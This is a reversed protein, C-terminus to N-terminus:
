KIKGLLVEIAKDIQPDKGAFFEEPTIDVKFDPEQGMDELPTGDMRYVGSGPMRASTGDVLRFGGTWIVYGPTPMGVLTALGRSKMAYPFMEANSYSTEAAMVVTPKGWTQGPALQPQEDRPVYYSHPRREIIDILQDSINGGGNDRVDIIVGDKGQTLQWFERQFQDFNGGGMGAIHVYTLKGNSKEEVYKRRAELLNRRVIGAFEGGSLARYKVTRANTKNPTSNVLLTLDRGTQNNLVDRFLSEDPRVDVGNVQLVYEGPRIRTKEYSGPAGDPVDKVKIGLGRHSYDITFGPHATTEGSPNGPGPGVESHSSELEGVMMNLVTAMENRHAVGDLLPAYRERIAAWDRGHFNGDYFSRNYERWFQNFAAKRELRVDRRWDARFSVGTVPTNPKRIEILSMAGGKVMAIQNGDASFDFRTLGGGNTLRKVESGDYSAKWLDGESIFYLDGKEVDAEVGSQPDQSVFRRVRDEIRDFDIDVKVPGTPKEYKLETDQSRAEEKQLPVVFLGGGGAQRGRGGGGGSRDSRFYLYKGDPSWGPSSNPGNEKTINTGRKEVTDYVWINTGSEWYYYGSRDLRDTYAIWRGDPSWVAERPEGGPMAMVLEPKANGDLAVKYLGGQAGTVWFSLAKKDPLLQLQFVDSDATTIQEAKKSELDLRYLHRAGKRDSVFFVSQGDPAYLPQEDLGEWTTLQEADNANPGKEKKVPVSWLESRVQFVFRDARPSLTADEVGDTLILREENTVKDDITATLAIKQPASGPKMTYVSGDVEFAVLDAKADATLFRVGGGVFDTLRRAGGRGDVRVVNPTRAANDTNRGNSKGLNSSSPTKESVTVCLVANDAAPTIWLHQFGNNRIATRKGTAEDFRWIQAAGSGQYRARFWPFGMRNYVIAKGGEAYHPNGITMMDEFLPQFALSRVDLEFVGNYADDRTSRFLIKRGDPSWDTPVESGSFWTLRRAAGGEAPVAFICNGGFRNSSFAIWKGDPSWVPNDDMEVHNTVPEAKGGVSPAVWVDGRYTFALRSGDPSLALSRAGILPLPKPDELQAFASGAGALLVLLLPLRRM